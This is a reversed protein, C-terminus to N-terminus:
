HDQSLGHQPRTSRATSAQRQRARVTQEVKTCRAVHHKELITKVQFDIDAARRLGTEHWLYENRSVRVM